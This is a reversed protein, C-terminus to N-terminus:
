HNSIIVAPFFLLLFCLLLFFFHVLIQLREEPLFHLIGWKQLHNSSLGFLTRPHESNSPIIKIFTEQNKLHHKGGKQVDPM